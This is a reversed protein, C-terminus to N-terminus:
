FLFVFFFQGTQFSVRLSLSPIKSIKGFFSLFLVLVVMIFGYHIGLLTTQDAAATQGTSESPQSSSTSSWSWLFWAQPWTKWSIWNRTSKCMTSTGGSQPPYFLFKFGSGSTLCWFGWEPLGALINVVSKGEFRGYTLEYNIRLASNASRRHMQLASADRWKTLTM